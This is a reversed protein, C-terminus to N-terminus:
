INDGGMPIAVICGNVSVFAEPHKFLALYKAVQADTLSGFDEGSCDCLFATGAIIDYIHGDADRLARNLPLGQLKGEENCVICVQEEFPYVAEILGGVVSQMSQLSPNIEVVRAEKEPELLVVRIMNRDM